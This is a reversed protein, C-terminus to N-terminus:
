LWIHLDHAEYWSGNYDPYLCRTTTYYLWSCEDLNKIYNDYTDRDRYMLKLTFHTLKPLHNQLQKLFITLTTPYESIFKTHCPFTLINLNPFLQSLEYILTTDYIPPHRPCHDKPDNQRLDEIYFQTMKRSSKKSFLSKLQQIVAKTDDTFVTLTDLKPLSSLFATLFYHEDPTLTSQDHFTLNLAKLIMCNNFSSYNECFNIHNLNLDLTSSSTFTTDLSRIDYQFTVLSTFDNLLNQLNSYEVAANYVILTLSQIQDKFVDLFEKKLIEGNLPEEHKFELYLKNLTKPVQVNPRYHQNTAKHYFNLISLKFEELNPLIKFVSSFTTSQFQRLNLSFYKITSIPQQIHSYDFNHENLLILSTLNSSAFSAITEPADLRSLSLTSLYQIQLAQSLLNELQAYEQFGFFVISKLTLSELNIFLHILSQFLHFQHEGSLKLVRLYHGQIPAIYKYFTVFHQYSLDERILDIEYLYPELIRQFRQNLNGFSDLLDFRNFYQFIILLLEDPLSEM